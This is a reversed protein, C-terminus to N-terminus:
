NGQVLYDYNEGFDAPNSGVEFEYGLGSFYPVVEAVPGFFIVRGAALVLVKSCLAFVEASPQHITLCVTRQAVTLIDVGDSGTEPDARALLSVSKLVDYATPADLGTTPEDLFMLTPLSIMEVAISLRKMEGCTTNKGVRSEAIHTLRLMSLM